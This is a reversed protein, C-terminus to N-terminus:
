YSNQGHWTIIFTLSPAGYPWSYWQVPTQMTGGTLTTPFLKNGKITMDSNAFAGNVCRGQQYGNVSTDFWVSGPNTNHQNSMSAVHLTFTVNYGRGLISDFSIKPNSVPDIIQKRVNNTNYIKMSTITSNYLNVCTSPNDGMAFAIDNNTHLVLITIISVALSLVLVELRSIIEL